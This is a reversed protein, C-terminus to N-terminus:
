SNEPHTKLTQYAILLETEGEVGDGGSPARESLVPHLVVNGTLKWTPNDIGERFLLSLGAPGPHFRITKHYCVAPHIERHSDKIFLFFAWFTHHGGWGTYLGGGGM